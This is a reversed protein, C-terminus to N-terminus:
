ENLERLIANVTDSVIPDLRNFPNAEFYRDIDSDKLMIKGDVRYAPLLGHKIKRKITSRHLGTYAEADTLSFWM